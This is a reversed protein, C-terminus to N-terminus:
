RGCTCRDSSAAVDFTVGHVDLSVLVERGDRQRLRPRKTPVKKGALHLYSEEEGWRVAGQDDDHKYKTGAKQEVEDDILAQMILLGATGCVERVAGHVGALIENIPLSLQVTAGETDLERVQGDLDKASKRRSRCRRKAYKRSM